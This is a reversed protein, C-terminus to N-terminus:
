RQDSTSEGKRQENLFRRLLIGNQNYVETWNYGKKIGIYKLAKSLAGELNYYGSIPNQLFISIMNPDIQKENFEKDYELLIPIIDSQYINGIEIWRKFIEDFM